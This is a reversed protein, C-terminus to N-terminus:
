IRVLAVLPSAFMTVSAVMACLGVWKPDVWGLRVISLLGALGLLMKLIAREMDPRENTYVYYTILSMLAVLSGVANVIILAPDALFVGYKLWLM